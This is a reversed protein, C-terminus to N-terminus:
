SALVASLQNVDINTSRQIPKWHKACGSYNLFVCQSPINLNRMEYGGRLLNLVCAVGILGTNEQNAWNALIKSFGSSHPILVTQAKSDTIEESTTKISCESNCKSCVFYNNMQKAKCQLEDQSRMCTPLLVIKNKTADFKKKYERNLIEAAVMNLHYEVEMRNCFVQNEKDRYSDSNKTIYMNVGKTYKHLRVKAKMEFLRSLNQAQVGLLNAYKDPIANIYSEWNKLRKVEEPFDGTADLWLLFRKFSISNFNATNGSDSSKRLQSILKGRVNDISNKLGFITNRNKYLFVLFRAPWMNQPIAYGSYVNWLVGLILIEIYYEHKSRLEEVEHIVVYDQYEDILEFIRKSQEEGLFRTTFDSLEEYFLASESEASNLLYTAEM